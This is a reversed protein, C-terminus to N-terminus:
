GNHIIEMLGRLKDKINSEFFAEIKEHFIDISQNIEEFNQPGRYYADYDLIFIKKRVPAPFDPNFMGYQFKIIIGEYNLILNNFARAINKNEKPVKLMTLLNEDLYDNWDLINNESLKIENIYRLGLRSSQLEQYEKFMAELINIFDNRLIHFSEYGKYSINVNDHTITLTKEKDRSHFIWETGETVKEKTEQTAQKSVQLEKTIFKRPEPIPFSSISAKKINQPLARILGNLPASFDMRIIVQDLFHNKYKKTM